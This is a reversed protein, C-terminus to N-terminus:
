WIVLSLLAAVLAAYTPRRAELVVALAIGRSVIVLIELLQSGYNLADYDWVTTLAGLCTPVLSGLVYSQLIREPTAEEFLLLFAFVNYFVIRGVAAAALQLIDLPVVPHRMQAARTFTEVLLLFTLFRALRIRGIRRNWLVHRFTRPKLLALDLATLVWDADVYPDAPAGCGPCAVLAVTDPGYERHLQAVGVGCGICRFSAM